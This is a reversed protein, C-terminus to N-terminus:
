EDMAGPLNTWVVNLAWMSSIFTFEQQNALGPEDMHLPGCSSHQKHTQEQKELLAMYTKKTKYNKLHSILPQTAELMQEFCRSANKHLEWRAKEDNMKNAGM